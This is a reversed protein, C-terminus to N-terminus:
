RRAAQDAPEGLEVHGCRYTRRAAENVPPAPTGTFWPPESEGPPGPSWIAVVM